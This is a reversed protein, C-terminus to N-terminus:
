TYNQVRRRMEREACADDGESERQVNKHCLLRFLHTQKFSRRSDCIFTEKEARCGSVTPQHLRGFTSMLKCQSSSWGSCPRQVHFCMDIGPSTNCNRLHVSSQQVWKTTPPPTKRGPAAFNIALSLSLPCPNNSGVSTLCTM